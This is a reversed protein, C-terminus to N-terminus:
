FRSSAGIVIRLGEMYTTYDGPTAMYLRSFDYQVMFNWVVGSFHIDLYPILYFNWYDPPTNLSYKFNAIFGGSLPFDPVLVAFKYNIDIDSKDGENDFGYKQENFYLPRTLFSFTHDTFFLKFHLDAELYFYDFNFNSLTADMKPLGASIFFDVYDNGVRFTLGTKYEEFPAVPFTLGGILELSLNFHDNEIPIQDFYLGIVTDFSFYYFADPTKSTVFNTNEYFHFNVRFRDDWFKIQGSLGTGRIRYFGIYDVDDSQPYYLYGRYKAGEGLYDHTGTWFSLDLHSDALNTAKVEAHHLLMFVKNYFDGPDDRYSKELEAVNAEFAVNASFKYGGDFSAIFKFYTNTIFSKLDKNFYNDAIIKLEDVGVSAPFTLTSLILLNFLILLLKMLGGVKKYRNKSNNVLNYM